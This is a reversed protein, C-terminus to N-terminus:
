LAEVQLVAQEGDGMSGLLYRADRDPLSQFRLVILGKAFATLFNERVELLSELPPTASPHLTDGPHKRIHTVTVTDKIAYEPLSKGAVIGEVRHSLLWWEAHLRDTPLSGHLPSTSPGYFDPTYRCVVAGLKEINLYANKVQMPDFTWEIRDIGRILADERQAFKLTIGIGRNRYDPHVALMHSHLYPKGNRVGPIALAYGVLKENDFAGIIQGGVARAVIFMRRPIVDLDRFQWVLQQLEVCKELDDISDIKRIAISPNAISFASSQTM